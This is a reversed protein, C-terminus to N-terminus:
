GWVKLYKDLRKLLSNLGIVWIEPSAKAVSISPCRRVGVSVPPCVSDKVRKTAKFGFFEFVVFLFCINDLQQFM